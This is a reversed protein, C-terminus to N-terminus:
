ASAKSNQQGLSAKAPTAKGVAALTAKTKKPAEYLVEIQSQAQRVRVARANANDRRPSFMSEDPRWLVWVKKVQGDNTYNVVIYTEGAVHKCQNITLGSNKAIKVEWDFGNRSLDCHGQGRAFTDCHQVISAEIKESLERALVGPSPPKFGYEVFTPTIQKYLKGVRSFVSKVATVIADREEPSLPPQAQQETVSEVM